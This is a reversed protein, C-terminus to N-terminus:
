GVLRSRLFVDQDITTRVLHPGHHYAKGINEPGPRVDFTGVESEHVVKNSQCKLAFIQRHKSFSVLESVNGIHHVADFSKDKSAFIRLTIPLDKEGDGVLLVIDRFNRLSDRLLDTSLYPEHVPGLIAFRDLNAIGDDAVLFDFRRQSPVWSM